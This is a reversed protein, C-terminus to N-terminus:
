YRNDFLLKCAESSNFSKSKQKTLGFVTDEHFANWRMLSSEKQQTISYKHIVPLTTQDQYVWYADFTSQNSNDSLRSFPLFYLRDHMSFALDYDNKIDDRDIVLRPRLYQGKEELNVQFRLVREDIEIGLDKLFKAEGAQEPDNMFDAECLLFETVTLKFSPQLKSKELLYLREAQEFRLSDQEIQSRALRNQKKLHKVHKEQAKILGDIQLAIDQVNEISKKTM